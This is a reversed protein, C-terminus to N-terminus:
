GRQVSVVDDSDDSDTDSDDSSDGGAAAAAAAVGAATVTPHPPGGGAAKYASEAKRFEDNADSYATDYVQRYGNDAPSCSFSAFFEASRERRRM